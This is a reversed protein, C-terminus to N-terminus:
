TLSFFRKLDEMVLCIQLVCLFPMEKTDGNAMAFLLGQFIHRGIILM